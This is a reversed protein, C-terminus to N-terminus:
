SKKQGKSKLYKLRMSFQFKLNLLQQRKVQVEHEQCFRLNLDFNNFRKKQKLLEM